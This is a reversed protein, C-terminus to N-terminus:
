NSRRLWDCRVHQQDTERAEGGDAASASPTGAARNVARRGATPTRFNNAAYDFHLAWSQFGNSWELLFVARLRDRLLGITIGIL